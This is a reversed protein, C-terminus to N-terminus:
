GCAGSLAAEPAVTYSVPSEGQASANGSIAVLAAAVAFVRFTM